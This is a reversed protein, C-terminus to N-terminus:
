PEYSSISEFTVKELNEDYSVKWEALITIIVSDEPNCGDEFGNLGRILHVAKKVSLDTPVVKRYKSMCRKVIEHSNDWGVKANWDIFESDDQFKLEVGASEVFKEGDAKMEEHTRIHNKRTNKTAFSRGPISQNIYFKPFTFSNFSASSLITVGGKDQLRSITYQSYSKAHLDLFNHPLSRTQSITKSSM